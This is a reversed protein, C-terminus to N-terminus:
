PENRTAPRPFHMGSLGPLAARPPFYANAGDRDVGAREPANPLASLRMLGARELANPVDIRSANSTFRYLRVGGSDLVDMRHLWYECEDFIDAAFIPTLETKTLSDVFAFWGALVRRRYDATIDEAVRVEFNLGSLFSM